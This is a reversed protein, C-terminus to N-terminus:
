CNSFKSTLQGVQEMINKQLMIKSPATTYGGFALAATQTGSVLQEVEEQQKFKWRSDL